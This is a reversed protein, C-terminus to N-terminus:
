LVFGWFRNWLGEEMNAIPALMDAFGNNLLLIEEDGFSTGRTAHLLLLQKMGTPDLILDPRLSLSTAVVGAVHPAALSTGRSIQRSGNQWMTLIEDGPTYIDVCSGWNSFRSRNDDESISGVSIIPLSQSFAPPLFQCADTNVNGAAVVIHIGADTAAELANYLKEPNSIPDGARMGMSLNIISGRFNPENMRRKHLMIVQNVGDAIALSSELQANCDYDSKAIKIGRINAKKAVGFSKSGIIAAVATGHGFYDRADRRDDGASIAYVNKARGEFESLRTSIGTDIVYIDVGAGAQAPYYYWLRKDAYTIDDSLAKRVPSSIRALNWPANRQVSCPCRQTGLSVFLSHEEHLLSDLYEDFVELLDSIRNMIRIIPHLKSCLSDFATAFLYELEAALLKVVIRAVFPTDEPYKAVHKIAIVCLHILDSLHNRSVPQDPHEFITSHYRIAANATMVTKTLKSSNMNTSDDLATCIDNREGAEGDEMTITMNDDHVRSIGPQEVNFMNNNICPCVDFGSLNESGNMEIMSVKNITGATATAAPTQSTNLTYDSTYQGVHQIDDRAVPGFFWSDAMLTLKFFMHFFTTLRM